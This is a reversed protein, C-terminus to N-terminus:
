ESPTQPSSYAIEIYSNVDSDSRKVADADPLEVQGSAGLSMHSASQFNDFIKYSVKRLSPLILAGRLDLGTIELRAGDTM